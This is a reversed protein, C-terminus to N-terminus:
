QEIEQYMTLVIVDGISPDINFRESVYPAGDISYTAEFANYAYGLTDTIFQLIRGEEEGFNMMEALFAANWDMHLRSTFRDFRLSNLSIAPDIEYNWFEDAYRRLTDMFLPILEANTYHRVEMVDISAQRTLYPDGNGDFETVYTWDYFFQMYEIFPGEFIGILHQYQYMGEGVRETKVLGVGEAYYERDTIGRTQSDIEVVMTTFTGYPTTIETDMSVIEATEVGSDTQMRVWKNGVVLPEALIMLYTNPTEGTSDGHDYYNGAMYILSLEGKERDFDYVDVSSTEQDGIRVLSRGQSRKEHVYDQFFVAFTEIEQVYPTGESDTRDRTFLGEFFITRDPTRPFFDAITYLVEQETVPGPPPSAVSGGTQPSCATLAATVAALLVAIIKKM